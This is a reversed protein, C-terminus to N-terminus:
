SRGIHSMINVIVGNPDRVFFRRVGWPENTIEYTIEYPLSKAKEYLQDIDEVEVSLTIGQNINVPHESRVISIQATPNTESVFTMIWQMDMALKLGLFNEYFERSGAM